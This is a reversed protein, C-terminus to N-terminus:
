EKKWRQCRVKASDSSVSFNATLARPSAKRLQEIPKGLLAM